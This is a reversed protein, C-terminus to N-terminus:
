RLLEVRNPDHGHPGVTHLVKKCPLNYGGTIVAHGTACGGITKCDDALQPGAASHIAGNAGKGTTLLPNAANVIADVALRVISAGSLLSVTKHLQIARHQDLCLEVSRRRVLDRLKDREKDTLADVMKDRAARLLPMRELAAFQKSTNTWPEINSLQLPDDCLAM